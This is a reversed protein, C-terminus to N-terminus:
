NEKGFNTWWRHTNTQSTYIDFQKLLAVPKACINRYYDHHYKNSEPTIAITVQCKKSESTYHTSYKQLGVHSIQKKGHLQLNM